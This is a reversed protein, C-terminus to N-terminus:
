TLQSLIMSKQRRLSLMLGGGEAQNPGASFIQHFLTDASKAFRSAPAHDVAQLRSAEGISLRVMFQLTQFYQLVEEVTM